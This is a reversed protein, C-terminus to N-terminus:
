IHIARARSIAVAVVAIRARHVATGRTVAGRTGYIAVVVVAARDIETACDGSTLVGVDEAVVPVGAIVSLLAIGCGAGALGPTDHVTVIPTDARLIGAIDRRAGAGVRKDMTVVAIHAVTDLPTIRLSPAEGPHGQVAVISVRAVTGLPAVRQGATLRAGRRR